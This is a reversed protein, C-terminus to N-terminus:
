VVFFAAIAVLAWDALLLVGMAWNSKGESIILNLLLVTAFLSVVEFGDFVLTVGEIGLCWALLVTLPTVLLATQISKGVTYDMTANMEDCIASIVPTFDCNLIPLLIVGVFTTSLGSKTTLTDISNVVYDVCFYLLVTTALFVALAVGLHLTPDGYEEDDSEGTRDAQILERLIGNNSATGDSNSGPIGILGAPGVMAQKINHVNPDHKIPVKPADEKFIDRHTHLSFHLYLGYVVALIVSAGRSQKIVNSDTTQAMLISATPILLSTSALSLLISSTHSATRNFYQEQRRIGGLIMGLGLLLLINALIGGILTTKLVTIHGNILLLICSILQVLNSTSIGIYNGVLEGTRLGIETMAFDGLWYLPIVAAYNVFFTPLSPGVVVGLVIGAPCCLLLINIWGSLLTRQIQNAVTFPEKPQIQKFLMHDKRQKTYSWEAEDAEDTEDARKPIPSSARQAESSVPRIKPFSGSPATVSRKPVPRIELLSASPATDSRKPVPQIEHLSGPFATDIEEPGDTRSPTQVELDNGDRHDKNWVHRFPNWGPDSRSVAHAQRKIQFANFKLPDM